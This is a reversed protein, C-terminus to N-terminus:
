RTAGPDPRIPVDGYEIWELHRQQPATVLHPCTPGYIPQEVDIRHYDVPWRRLFWNPAFREKVADWWTKPWKRHISVRDKPSAHLYSQMRLVVSRLLEDEYVQVEEKVGLLEHIPIRESLGVRIQEAFHRTSRENM